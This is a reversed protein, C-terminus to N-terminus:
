KQFVSEKKTLVTLLYYFEVRLKRRNSKGLLECVLHIYHDLEPGNKIRLKKILFNNKITKLETLDSCAVLKADKRRVASGLYKTIAKYLSADYALGYTSLANQFADTSEDDEGVIPFLQSSYVPGLKSFDYFGEEINYVKGHAKKFEIMAFGNQLLNSDPKQNKERWKVQSIDLADTNGFPISGHGACRALTSTKFTPQGKEKITLPSNYVIANHVHGWYWAYPDSNGLAQHIQGWLPNVKTCADEFGNHHTFVITKKPDLGLSKIWTAQSGDTEGISGQMYADFASGMYASDLGLLNWDGFKLLFCGQGQQASFPTSPHGLAEDFYGNGGAYMEHNSNLTFSKGAYQHPWLQLLNKMEEGPSFYHKGHPSDKMPTGSYYVDGLHIIYDPDHRIIHNMVLESTQDGAGWDGVIAVRVSDPDKGELKVPLVTVPPYTDGFKNLGRIATELLNLFALFWNADYTAFLEGSLVSGDTYILEHTGSHIYDYNETTMKSVPFTDNSTIRWLGVVGIIELILTDDFPLVYPNNLWYAAMGLEISGSGPKYGEPPQPPEGQWKGKSIMFSILDWESNEIYAQLKKLGETIIGNSVNEM